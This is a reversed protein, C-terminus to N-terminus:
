KYSFCHKKNKFIIKKNNKFQIDFQFYNELRNSLLKVYLVQIYSVFVIYNVGTNPHVYFYRNFILYM